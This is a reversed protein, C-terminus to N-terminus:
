ARDASTGREGFSRDSRTERERRLAERRARARDARQVQLAEDFEAVSDLLTELDDEDVVALWRKQPLEELLGARVLREMDRSLASRETSRLQLNERLQAQTAPEGTRALHRVIRLRRDPGLAALLHEM